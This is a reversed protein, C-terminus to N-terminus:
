FKRRVVRFGRDFNYQTPNYSLRNGSTCDDPGDNYSGGRIVVEQFDSAADNIPDEKPSNQYFTDDYGDWVWESVNGHMDYIGWDNPQKRAVPQTHDKFDNVTWGMEEINGTGGYKGTTGARCAYEWEAETPLRYGNASFDCEVQHAHEEGNITYCPEFGESKSLENCFKLARFWTVQDVPRNSGVHKSPNSVEGFIKKWQAQTVETKSIYYNYTITAEHQVSEGWEGGDEEGMTFTGKPVLVMELHTEVLTYDFGNSKEGQVTVYLKGSEIGYPATVKIREDTWELYDGNQVKIDGFEVFSNGRSNGFNEGYISVEDDVSLTRPSIDDIVPGVGKVEINLGNSEKGNVHVKVPGTVANEPVVVTIETDSWSVYGGAAVQLGNFTVYGSGRSDGFNEGLITLEYGIRAFDDSFGTIVPENAGIVFDIGDSGKNGVYVKLKGSTAGAPIKVTIENTTWSIIDGASTKQTNFLVYGANKDNGFYKGYITVEDGTEGRYRSLSDVIPHTEVITFEVKNSVENNAHVTVMGSSAGDPVICKIKTDSWLTHNQDSVSTENFEVYGLNRQDGFNKGIITIEEGYSGSNPELKDILPTTVKFMIGNTEEDGIVVKIKGSSAGYPIVAEIKKAAWTYHEDDNLKRDGLMVYENSDKEETFGIGYIAVLSGMKGTNPSISDIMLKTSDVNDNDDPNTGGDDGCNNLLIIGLALILALLPKFQKM